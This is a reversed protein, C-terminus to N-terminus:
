YMAFCKRHMEIVNEFYCLRFVLLVSLTFYFCRSFSICATSLKVIKKKMWKGQLVLLLRATIGKAMYFWVSVSKLVCICVHTTNPMHVRCICFNEFMEFNPRYFCATKIILSARFNAYTPSFFFFTIMKSIFGVFFCNAKFALFVVVVFGITATHSAQSACKVKKNEIWSKM